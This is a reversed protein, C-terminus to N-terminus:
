AGPWWSRLNDRNDRRPPKKAKKPSPDSSDHALRHRTKPPPRSESFNALGNGRALTEAHRREALAQEAMQMEREARVQAARTDAEPRPAPADLARGQGCPQDSYSRGDAGCRWITNSQAAALMPALLLPLTMAICTRARCSM